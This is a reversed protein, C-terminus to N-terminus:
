GLSAPEHRSCGASLCPKSCSQLIDPSLSKEALAPNAAPKCPAPLPPNKEGLTRVQVPTVALSPEASPLHTLWATHHTTGGTPAPSATTQTQSQVWEDGGMEPKEEKEGTGLAKQAPQSTPTGRGHGM